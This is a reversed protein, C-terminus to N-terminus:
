FGIGSASKRFLAESDRDFRFARLFHEVGYEPVRERVRAALRRAESTRGALDLAFAAIALIHGHANPRAIARLAWEAAEENEGLRLHAVARSALMGFQLPDFPSLARSTDCAAIASRPEGSQANVFGITYHGLAFNPSLDV